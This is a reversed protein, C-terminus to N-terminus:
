HAGSVYTLCTAIAAGITAFREVRDPFDNSLQKVELSLKELALKLNEEHMFFGGRNKFDLAELHIVLSTNSHQLNLDKILGMRQFQNLIAQLATFDINLEKLFSTTKTDIIKDFLMPECIANLVADKMKPTIM